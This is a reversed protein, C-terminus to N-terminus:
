SSAREPEALYGELRELLQRYFRRLARRAWPRAWWRSVDPDRLDVAVSVVTREGDRGPTLTWTAVLASGRDRERLQRGPTLEEVSVLYSGRRRGVRLQHAVVTGGGRGGQQIVYDVFHETLMRPRADQYDRLVAWVREMPADVTREVEVSIRRGFASDTPGRLRSPDPPVGSM